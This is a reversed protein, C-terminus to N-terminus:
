RPEVVSKPSQPDRDSELAERVHDLDFRGTVTAEYRVSLRGIPAQLLHMRSGTRTVAETVPLPKGDITVVLQDRVSAGPFPAVALQLAVDSPEHVTADLAAAVHRILPM